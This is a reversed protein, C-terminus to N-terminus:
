IKGIRTGTRPHWAYTFASNTMLWGLDGPWVDVEVGESVCKWGGFTNVKADKPILMAADKWHSFPIV